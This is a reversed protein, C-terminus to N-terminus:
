LVIRPLEFHGFRNPTYVLGERDGALRCDAAQEM